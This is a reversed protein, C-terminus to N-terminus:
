LLYIICMSKLEKVADELEMYNAWIAEKIVEDDITFDKLQEKALPLLQYQIQEEEEPTPQDDSYDSNAYDEFDDEDLRM